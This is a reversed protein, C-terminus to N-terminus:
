SSADSFKSLSLDCLSNNGGYRLSLCSQTTSATNPVLSLSISLTLFIYLGKFLFLIAVFALAVLLSDATFSPLPLVNGIVYMSSASNM